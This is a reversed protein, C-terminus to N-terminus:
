FRKMSQATLKSFHRKVLLIIRTFSTCQTVPFFRKDWVSFLPRRIIEGMCQPHRFALRTCKGMEKKNLMVCPIQAACWHHYLCILLPTNWLVCSAGQLLLVHFTRPRLRFAEGTTHHAKDGHQWTPVPAMRGATPSTWHGRLEKARSSSIRSSKQKM